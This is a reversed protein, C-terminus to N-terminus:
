KAQKMAKITNIYHNEIPFITFYLTVLAFVYSPILLKLAPYLYQIFSCLTCLGIVITIPVLKQTNLKQEPEIDTQVLSITYETFVLIYYIMFILYLRYYYRYIIGNPDHASLYICAIDLLVSAMSILILHSFIINEPTFNKKKTLFAITILLLYVFAVISFYYSAM